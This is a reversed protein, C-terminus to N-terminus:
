ETSCNDLTSEFLFSWTQIKLKSTSNFLESTTHNSLALWRFVYAASGSPAVVTLSTLYGHKPAVMSHQEIRILQRIWRAANYVPKSNLRNEISLKAHFVVRLEKLSRGM